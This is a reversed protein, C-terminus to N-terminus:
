GEPMSRSARSLIRYTFHHRRRRKWLMLPVAGALLIALTGPEPVVNLRMSYLGGNGSTIYLLDPDVSSFTVNTASTGLPLTGIQSRTTVDFVWVGNSAAAYLNGAADFCLGDPGSIDTFKRGNIPLGNPDLDYLMIKNDTWAGVYLNTGDPSIAVGNPRNLGTIVQYLTGTPNIYYVAEAQNNRNRYNPDTFYVGGNAARDVDNPGNLSKGDYQIALVEVSAFSTGSRRVLRNGVTDEAVLLRGLGDFIM